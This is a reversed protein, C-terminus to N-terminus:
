TSSTGTVSWGPGGAAHVTLRERAAGMQRARRLLLAIGTDAFMWPNRRAKEVDLRSDPLMFHLLGGVCAVKDHISVAICSGLGYTVLTTGQEDSLLCDGVGVTRTSM